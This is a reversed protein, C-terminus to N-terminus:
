RQLTNIILKLKGSTERPINEVINLTIHMDQGFKESIERRLVQAHHPQYLAPDIKVLVLLATLEHQQIQMNIISHPLNKVINSVNGQNIKTGNTALLYDAARGEISTVIPTASGCDCYDSDDAFTMSDGIRYRILPTGYTFFSTVLIEDTDQYREIIGTSLDYHLKGHPCEWVFPAGESSAYQDRVKCRFVREIVERYAPVITESTPFIALPQFTLPIDRKEIYAAIDYISSFFGDLVHPRFRNLSDIYYPINSESHHFSSYVMQKYPLNYRWYTHHQQGAPIIHKGNFTARRMKHNIFGHTLKFYDLTAFREQTNQRTYYVTLSKGTTGGTHSVYSHAREITVIDDIRQRLEEKSILPLRQLDALSTFRTIDIGHFRERYFKSHAVAYQLFDM